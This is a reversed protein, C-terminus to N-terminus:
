PVVKIPIGEQMPLGNTTGTAVWDGENLGSLIPAQTLNPVGTTVPTRVLTKGDVVKYVYPKGNGNEVHLAERPVSLANEQSSTTVTVTVNTAPLLDTDPDDVQVLVEGVTRSLGYIIVTVPTRIIHGQWVRDPKGKWQIQIKQGVALQGIDPEDFYARVREHRLDAYQVLLKGEEVFETRGADVTYVTGAVEARPTTKALAERAVALSAEADALEARAREVEAASYRSSSSQLSAHLSAEASDLRQQAASVEAASAAGTSKLKTLADVDRRAQDRELSARAIDAASAQREQQTGNHTAAEVAAQAAKVGSEATAVRARAQTDDLQMLVKGAPVVDGPQVYVAQVTTAMPSHVEYNTEPEVLGNSSITNILERHMAQAERVPLRDRTLYRTAFFVLIIVIAAGLWLWLRGTQVKEEPMYGVLTLIYSEFVAGVFCFIADATYRALWSGVRM